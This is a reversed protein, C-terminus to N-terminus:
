GVVIWPLIKSPLVIDFVDDCVRLESDKQVATMAELWRDLLGDDDDDLKLM